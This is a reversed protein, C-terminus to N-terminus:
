IELGDARLMELCKAVCDGCIHASPGIILHRVDQDNKACFACSSHKEQYEGLLLARFAARTQDDHEQRCADFERLVMLTFTAVAAGSVLRDASAIIALARALMRLADEYHGDVGACHASRFLERAREPLKVDGQERPVYFSLFRAM